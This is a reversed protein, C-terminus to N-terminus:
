VTALDLLDGRRFEGRALQAVERGAEAGYRAALVDRDLREIARVYANEARMAGLPSETREGDRLVAVVRDQWNPVQYSRGESTLVARTQLGRGVPYRKVTFTDLEAGSTFTLKSALVVSDGAKLGRMAKRQAQYQACRERWELAYGNDTPTLAKLVALPASVECPGMTEDMDKYTFNYESKPAWQTLVVYAWIVGPQSPTEVAAYFTGAVTGSAHIRTGPKFSALFFEENTTGKDRHQSTWGM